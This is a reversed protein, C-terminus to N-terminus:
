ARRARRRWWGAWVLLWGATPAGGTACSCGGPDETVVDKDEAPGPTPQATDVPEPVDTEVDSDEPVDSDELEPDVGDCDADIADGPADEV